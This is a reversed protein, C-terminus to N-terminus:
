RKRLSSILIWSTHESLKCEWFNWGNIGTKTISFAAASPYNYNIGNYELAGDNVMADYHVGKHFARFPTGHPFRVGKVVWDLKNSDSNSQPIIITDLGLLKRIVDNYTVEENERLNTLKKYAEFDIEIQLM